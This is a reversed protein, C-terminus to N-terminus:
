ASIIIKKVSFLNKNINFFIIKAFNKNMKM